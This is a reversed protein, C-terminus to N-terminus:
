TWSEGKRANLKRYIGRNARYIGVFARFAEDYRARLRADPLYTHRIPVAAPIAAVDLHNLAAAALLAAGRLNVWEPQDAQRIPRGLVDAFIQAWLDSRAGGGVFTIPGLKRKCFKEVYTHLWRTNLAVGELVARVLDARTTTLSQNFFGARVTADEVPTREGYLWPTFIVRGAGPEASAAVADLHRYLEPGGLDPFLLRGVYDLCAGATEQENAVFYRGPLPAPLSAINHLLDTRKDPLHASLWASTGVYLHPDYDAVAGSGVAATQVDASGAVVPVGAAIGLEAAPGPLLPGLVSTAPVLEPLQDETLGALRLLGADYRVSDLRRNDTVWHLAISDYSAAARGTLRLNLYDKPELFAAAAAYVEAREARLWRIHAIPDKGSRAPAGGTLRIWTALKLPQYGQVRVPGGILDAVHPAGRTDMWIIANGLPQGAGDVAVTGSWQATCAVAAVRAAAEPEADFLRRAAVTIARWWAHPDQEAGGGSFLLLDVPEFSAAHVRGSLTVLGVKPGSTGLDVALVLDATVARRRYGGGLGDAQRDCHYINIM